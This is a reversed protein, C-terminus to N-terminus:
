KWTLTIPGSTWVDWHAQNRANGLPRLVKLQLKYTGAPVKKGNTTRGTWAIEEIEGDSRGVYDKRYAEGMFRGTSADYIEVRVEQAQRALSYLIYAAAEDCECGPRLTLEDARYYQEGDVGALWPLGYGLDDLASAAQYDGMYGLYPLHAVPENDGNLVAVWGWFLGEPLDASPTITLKVQSSQGPRLQAPAFKADVTVNDGLVEIRYTDSKQSTNTLTLKQESKQGPRMQGLSLKDETIRVAGTIAKYVDIMGAGQRHVPYLETSDPGQTRPTATNMLMARVAEARKKRGMKALDDAKADLILAAAGAVHPAAMSTGSLTAYGGLSLPYTSYINGGPATLDPKIALDPAPGWSSFSSITGATPSDFEFTRGTWTLSTNGQEVLGRLRLGDELSLSLTPVYTGPQGMTGSFSGSQNNHILVAAAGHQAARMSKDRFSIGGRSLLAVKGAVKSSGDPNLFDADSTGLGAYVLEMTGDAPPAPTYEMVGYGIPQNEGDLFGLRRMRDNEFSAVAISGRGVAPAGTAFEGADGSNGASVAVVVGKQFLREVAKATSYEPWQFSAGLSMNIVDAKLDWAMELADIIIHERTHGETGFVKLALFSVGPAVGTVGDESAARAGIIGAVHTGHGAHDMPDADPIPTNDGNFDEGVFDYGGIVRCGNGLCGGLDPHTYDIGTDIVAVTIGTGDAGEIEGDGRWVEPAGILGTSTGLEPMPREIRGSIRVQKVGPLEAIKAVESSKVQLALGNFVKNYRGVEKFGIKENTLAKAFAGQEAQLQQAAQAGPALGMAEVTEALPAGTLEAIVIVDEDPARQIRDGGPAAGASVASFSLLFTTLAALMRRAGVGSRVARPAM